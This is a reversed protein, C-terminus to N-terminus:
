AHRENVKLVEHYGTDPTLRGKRDNKIGSGFTRRNM